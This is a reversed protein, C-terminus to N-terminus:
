KKVSAPITLKTVDSYDSGEDLMEGFVEEGISTVVKGQIESPIVVETDNGLYELIKMEDNKVRVRWEGVVIEGIPKETPQETPKATPQETPQEVPKTTPQDAPKTTPQETPKTTPKSATKKKVTIKCKYKKKGIKATITAKGAKKGKVKGKEYSNCSEQKIYEM